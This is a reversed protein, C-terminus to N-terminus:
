VHNKPDSADAFANGVLYFCITIISLIIAPFWLQYRLGPYTIYGRGINVLNGLSPIDIPLGIGIYTMFVESGIASPIALAMHLMVVSVMQPLLNKFIIRRTPTGLCRSALNFDRDRIILVQNRVFRALGLWRTVCMAIIITSVSPKMIYAALILIITSPINDVINYLETFFFDLKRVYGWLMGMIIGVVAEVIAVMIGIFLSTRTGQWLRSWLDQGIRNTGFIFIGVDEEGDFLDKFAASMRHFYRTVSWSIREFFPLADKAEEDLFDIEQTGDWIISWTPKRNKIPTGGKAHTAPYNNIANADRQGPLYPQIFTFIVLIAMIILMAVALKNKFFMRLTSGWYSYNSYGIREAQSADYDAKQFLDNSLGQMEETNLDEKANLLQESSQVVSQEHQRCKRESPSWKSM